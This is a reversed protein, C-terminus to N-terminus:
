PESLSSCFARKLESREADRDGPHLVASAGAPNDLFPSLLRTQDVVFRCSPMPVRSDRVNRRCSRHGRSRVIPSKWLLTRLALFSLDAEMMVVM